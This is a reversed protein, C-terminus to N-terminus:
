IEFQTPLSVCTENLGGEGQIKYWIGKGDTCAFNRIMQQLPDADQNEQEYSYTDERKKDLLLFGTLPIIFLSLLWRSLNM